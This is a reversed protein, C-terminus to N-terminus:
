NNKKDKMENKKEMEHKKREVHVLTTNNGRIKWRIKLEKEWM